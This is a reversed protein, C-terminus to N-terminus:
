KAVLAGRARLNAGIRNATMATTTGVCSAM